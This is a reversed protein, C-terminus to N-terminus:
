KRRVAVRKKKGPTRNSRVRAKVSRQYIKGDSNSSDSTNVNLLNFLSSGSKARIKTSKQKINM